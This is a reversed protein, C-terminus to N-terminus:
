KQKELLRYVMAKDANVAHVSLFAGSYLSESRGRLFREEFNEM